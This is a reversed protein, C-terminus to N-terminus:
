AVDQYFVLLKGSTTATGGTNNITNAASVVFESTLDAIDEATGDAPLHLVGILADGAAIGTVTHNGAAGGAILAMKIFGTALKPKTVAGDALAAATVKGPNIRGELPTILEVVANSM